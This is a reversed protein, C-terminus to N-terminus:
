SVLDDATMLHVPKVQTLGRAYHDCITPELQELQIMKIEHSADSCLITEIWSQVADVHPTNTLM